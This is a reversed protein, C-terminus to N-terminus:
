QKRGGGLLGGLIEGLGGPLAGAQGQSAGGQGGGGLISGLIDGLGGGGGTQQGGTPAQQQGAPEQGGAPPQAGTNSGTPQPAQKGGLVRDALYKLVIPALIPLLKRVLDNGGGLGGLQQVVQDTNGGFVNGVIKDAEEPQVTSPDRDQHQSLAETLSAAGGADAANAQMGGLLAPVVQEAAAQVQQPDSGVQAAIQDIPLQGLIDSSASM